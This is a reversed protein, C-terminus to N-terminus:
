STVTKEEYAGAANRGTVSVVTVPKVEGLKGSGVAKSVGLGQAFTYLAISGAAGLAIYLGHLNISGSVGWASAFAAAGAAVSQEALTKFFSLTWTVAM